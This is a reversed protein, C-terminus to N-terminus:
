ETENKDWDDPCYYDSVKYEEFAGLDPPLSFADETVKTKTASELKKTVM